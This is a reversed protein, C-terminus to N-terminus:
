GRSHSLQELLSELEADIHENERRRREAESEPSSYDPLAAEPLASESLAAEPLASEPELTPLRVLTPETAVKEGAFGEAAPAEGEGGAGPGAFMRAGNLENIILLVDIPSIIGDGNVDPMHSPPEGNGVGGSPTPHPGNANLDNILILVDLPSIIGDGNVDHPNKANHYPSAKAAISLLFAQSGQKGGAATASVTLSLTEGQESDLTVEDRLKLQGQVIEFRADSTSLGYPGSEGDPDHVAVSGVVAGPTHEEVQQGSLTIELPAQQQGAAYLNFMEFLEYVGDSAIVTVEVEPEQAFDLQVGEALKLQDGDIAFRSDLVRFEYNSSADPDVVSLRGITAGPTDEPVQRNDLEIALPAENVDSVTLTAVASISISSDSADTALFHVTMQPEAEYDLSGAVLSIRGDVVAFRPDSTTIRYSADRDVDVIAVWGVESGLGIDEAMDPVIVSISLPPDNVPTVQWHLLFETTFQGDRVEVRASDSGNFNPAPAYEWPGGGDNEAARILEGHKPLELVDFWLPDGDPDSIGPEFHLNFQDLGDEAVVRPPLDAVQPPSNASRELGAFFATVAGDSEASAAAMNAGGLQQVDISVLRNVASSGAAADCSRPWAQEADLVIPLGALM